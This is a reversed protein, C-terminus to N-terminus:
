VFNFLKVLYIFGFFFVQLALVTSAARKNGQAAHNQFVYSTGFSIIFWGAYNHIGARGGSFYWFDLAPALQEILVDIATILGASFLARLLKNGSLSKSVIIGCTVLLAWNLSIVLPVALIKYGLSHGYQYDGFILGTKVGIVESVFGVVAIGAFALVFNLKNLPQHILFVFCTFALTYPTFPKFFSPHLVFGIAGSVYVLILFYLMYKRAQNLMTSKM